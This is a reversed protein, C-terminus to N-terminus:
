IDLVVTAKWGEDTHELSFRHLTVAKVDVGLEHREPDVTEGALGAQLRYGGPLEEIRLSDLQLLLGEADKYFLMEQLLNFLLLDASASQVEVNRRERAQLGASNKVMVELTAAWASRFVEELDRGRVQFAVDAQTLGDLYRYPM